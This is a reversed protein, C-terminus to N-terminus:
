KNADSYGKLIEPHNKLLWGKLELLEKNEKVLKQVRARLYSTLGNDM